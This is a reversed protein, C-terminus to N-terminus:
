AVPRSPPRRRRSCPRSPTPPSADPQRRRGHRARRAARGRHRRPPRRRRDLAGREALVAAVGAHRQARVRKTLTQYAVERVVASRFRWWRGEVDLLGDAALEDLDRQRFEQGMAEAFRVLAGISDATGLVAANDVIARQPAPLQDIRAAILARLSGPLENGCTAALGALEVLFLPNGGGRDVLEAVTRDTPEAGANSSSAACWRPRTRSASRASRSRCSSRGSSRRRGCSTATRASPRSSCSRAPRLASRVIVGLHDRLSPDAWQLNDVFLVTMRTQAHRRVMDTLTVLVADRVGAADLRDLPSDHGLLYGVVDLYRRLAPRRPPSTGCSTPGPGSTRRHGRRAHRRHRHRVALGARHRRAGVRQQRRVARVGHAGRHGRGRASRHDRRGPAVQRGRGRRHDVRGRQPRQAGAARRRRAALARPARGVFPVDCRVPRVGAPDAGTVLWSQEDQERGRLRTVGFPERHISPPCLAVTASGALVGGPPALAQLRSATNVVDGMATYDSGALIGVLVEGTNIGIRM